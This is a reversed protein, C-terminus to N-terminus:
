YSELTSLGLYVPKNLLIDIKQKNTQKNKNNNKKMQIALPNETFLKTTHYNPKRVNEIAKGFVSDIILKFCIKKLIM